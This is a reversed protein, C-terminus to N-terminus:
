RKNNDFIDRLWLTPYGLYKIRFNTTGIIQSNTIYGDDINVNADGKTFYHNEGNVSEIKVIRHVTRINDHVFIIVQDDKLTEGHYAKYVIVDGKDISGTMSESGIVLVGYNFRCSILGILLSMIVVLIFTSIINKSRDKYATAFNAKSYTYELVLYIIYPYLMRLFSRFFIYIDPIYPMFYAYLITMLRYIIIGKSGYRYSIYNYLLNCAISAFLIFGVMTLMDDLKYVDYVGSYIVLDILIMGIALLVKSVKGKQIILTKRIYESAIVIVTFPIIYNIITRFGFPTPSKYYGFYIGMMYFVILYIIAFGTMLVAVQNSNYSIPKKKKILLRTIIAVITILLALLKKDFVNSVFLALCLIVLLSIELLYLRLKDKKM